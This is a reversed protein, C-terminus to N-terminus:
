DCSVCREFAVHRKLVTGGRDLTMDVNGFKIQDRLLNVYGLFMRRCCLRRVHLADLVEGAPEGQHATRREYEDHMHAVVSNCTYCRVPLM